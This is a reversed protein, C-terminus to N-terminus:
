SGTYLRELDVVEVDDRVRAEAALADHIREGFLLLTAGQARPGLAARLQELRHLHRTTLEEGAKAEGLALVTREAPVAGRAAVLVDVQRDVGGVAVLSPGLHDLVPVTAQGAFTAVWTRAMEEFVPGRVAADFAPALHDRWLVKLDRHRLHQGNPELVAYHFQLFPDGLAYLPRRTRIPDDLRVVFGAEILRRLPPELNSIPRGVKSSIATATVAGNAIAGLISHHLM